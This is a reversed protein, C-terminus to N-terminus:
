RPRRDTMGSVVAAVEFPESSSQQLVSEVARVITSEDRNGMVIVLLAPVM